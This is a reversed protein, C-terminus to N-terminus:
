VVARRRALKAMFESETCNRYLSNRYEDEVQQNLLSNSAVLYRAYSETRFKRKMDRFTESMEPRSLHTESYCFRISLTSRPIASRKM